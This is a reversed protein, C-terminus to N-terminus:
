QNRFTFPYTVRVIGGNTPPEIELAFMTEQVCEALGADLIDSSEEEIASESVLGGVGPEGEITFNVVLTGALTPTNARAQTYCDVIMPLLGGM